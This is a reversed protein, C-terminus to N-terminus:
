NKEADWKGKPCKTGPMMTKSWIACGCVECSKIGIITTLHECSNCIDRRQQVFNIVSSEGM